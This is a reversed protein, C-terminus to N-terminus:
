DWYENPPPSTLHPNQIHKWNIKPLSPKRKLSAAATLFSYPLVPLHVPYPYMINGFSWYVIINLIILLYFFNLTWGLIKRDQFFKKKLILFLSKHTKVFFQSFCKETQFDQSDPIPLYNLPWTQKTLMLFQSRVGPTWTFLRRPSMCRYGWCQPSLSLPIEKAWQFRVLITLELSPGQRLCNAHLAVSSSMERGGCGGAHM